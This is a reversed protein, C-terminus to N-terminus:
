VLTLQLQQAVYDFIIQDDAGWQSVVTDTLPLTGSKIPYKFITFAQGGNGDPIPLGTVDDFGLEVVYDIITYHVDGADGKFNYNEFNDIRLVKSLTCERENAELVM